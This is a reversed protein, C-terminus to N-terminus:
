CLTMPFLLSVVELYLMEAVVHSWAYVDVKENYMFGLFAQVITMLFAYIYIYSATTAITTTM